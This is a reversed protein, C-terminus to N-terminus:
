VFTGGSLGTPADGTWDIRITYWDGGGSNNAFEWTLHVGTQNSIDGSATETTGNSGTYLHPMQALGATRSTGIYCELHDDLGGDSTDQTTTITTIHCTSPIDFTVSKRGADYPPDPLGTAAKEYGHTGGGVYTGGTTAAESDFVFGGDSVRFDWVYGTVCSTCASCDGMATGQAGANSVGVKGQISLFLNVVAAATSNMTATIMSQLAAFRTDDYQGNSDANCYLACLLLDYQTADFAGSIEAYGIGFLTGAADLILNLLWGGAEAFIIEAFRLIENALEVVIGGIELIATCRDIVGKIWALANAAGNCEIDSGTRAPFRFQPANRPDSGSADNWTTGGDPSYQVCACDSNYRYSNTGLQDESLRSRILTMSVSDLGHPNEDSLEVWFVPSSDEAVFGMGGAPLTLPASVVGDAASYTDVEGIAVGDAFFKVIGGLPNSKFTVVFNRAIPVFSVAATPLGAYAIFGAVVYIFANEVFTLRDDILVLQGYWPQEELSASDDSDDGSEEDWFPTPVDTACIDAMSRAYADDIIAQWAAAAEAQTMTGNKYWAWEQTLRDVAGMLLAFWEEDDPVIFIRCGTDGSAANPTPFGTQGDYLKDPLSSSM